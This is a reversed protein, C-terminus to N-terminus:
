DRDPSRDAKTKEASPTKDAKELAKTYNLSKSFRESMPAPAKENTEQVPETKGESPMKDEKTQRERVFSLQKMMLEQSADLSKEEKVPKNAEEPSLQGEKAPRDRFNKLQTRMLDQSSELDKEQRGLQELEKSSKGAYPNPYMKENYTERIQAATLEDPRTMEIEHEVRKELTTAIQDKETKLQQTYYDRNVSPGGGLMGPPRYQVRYANPKQESTSTQELQKDIERRRQLGQAMVDNLYEYGEPFAPARNDKEKQQDM